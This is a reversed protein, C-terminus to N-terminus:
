IYHTKKVNPFRKLLIKAKNRLAKLNRAYFIWLGKELNIRENDLDYISIIKEDRLLMFALAKKGMTRLEKIIVPVVEAEKDTKIYKKLEKIHTEHKDPNCAALLEKIKM